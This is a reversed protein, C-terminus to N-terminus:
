KQIRKIPAKFDIILWMITESLTLKQGQEKYVKAQINTLEQHVEPTIKLTKM